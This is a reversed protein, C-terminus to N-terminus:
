MIIKKKQQTYGCMRVTTIGAAGKGYMKSVKNKQKIQKGKATCKGESGIVKKCSKDTHTPQITLLLTFIKEKYM